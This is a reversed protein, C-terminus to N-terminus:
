PSDASLKGEMPGFVKLDNTTGLFEFGKTGMVDFKPGQIRVPLSSALRKEDNLYKAYDTFITIGDYGLRVQNEIEAFDIRNDRTLVSLGKSVFHLTLSESSFEKNKQKNHEMGKVDGLIELTNPDYFSGLKGSLSSIVRHDEYKYIVFDEVTIRPSHEKVPLAIKSQSKDRKSFVYLASGFLLIFIGVLIQKGM